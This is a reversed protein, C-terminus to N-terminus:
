FQIIFKYLIAQRLTKTVIPFHAIAMLFETGIEAPSVTSHIIEAWMGIEGLGAVAETSALRFNAVVTKDTPSEFAENDKRTGLTPFFQDILATLSPDLSTIKVPNSGDYGGRGVAFGKIIFSIEGLIVRAFNTRAEDTLSTIIVDPTDLFM